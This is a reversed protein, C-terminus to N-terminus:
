FMGGIEVGVASWGLHCKEELADRVGPVQGAVEVAEDDAEDDADQDLLAPLDAEREEEQDGDRRDQGGEGDHDDVFPVGHQEEVQVEEGAGLLVRLEPRGVGLRVRPRRGVEYAHERPVKIKLIQSRRLPETPHTELKITPTATRFSPKWSFDLTVIKNLTPRRKKLM